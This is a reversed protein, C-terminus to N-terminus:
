WWRNNTSKADNSVVLVPRYGAQERGKSSSLNAFYIQGRRIM